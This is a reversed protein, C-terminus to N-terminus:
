KRIKGLCVRKLETLEKRAEDREKILKNIKKAAEAPTMVKGNPYCLIGGLASISGFAYYLDQERM